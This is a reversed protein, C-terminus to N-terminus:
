MRAQVEQMLNWHCHLFLGTTRSTGRVSGRGQSWYWDHGSILTWALPLQTHLSWLSPFHMIYAGFRGCEIHTHTHIKTYRPCRWQVQTWGIFFIKTHKEHLKYKRIYKGCWDASPNLRLPQQYSASYTYTQSKSDQTQTLSFHKEGVFVMSWRVSGDIM